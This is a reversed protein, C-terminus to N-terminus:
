GVVALADASEPDLEQARKAAATAKPLLEPDPDLGLSALWAYRRALGWFAPAFEPARECAQEFYRIARVAAPPIFPSQYRGRLYLEYVKPDVPPCCALRAEEAATLTAHIAEAVSRAVDAHLVLVDTLDREYTESWLREETSGKLLQLTIRVRNGSRLVSGEMVSSVGLQAAIETISEGADRYRLMTTRSIVMLAGIRSLEAIVADHMGAAFFAQEPDGTLDAFPLVAVAPKRAGVGTPPTLRAIAATGPARSFEGRPREDEGPPREDPGAPRVPRGPSVLADLYARVTPFRDAPTKALAREIVGAVRPALGPRATTLPPVPDLAHRAMVMM